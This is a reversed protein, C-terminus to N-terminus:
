TSTPWSCRTWPIYSSALVCVNAVVGGPPKRKERTRVEDLTIQGAEYEDWYSLLPVSVGAARRREVMREHCNRWGVLYENLKRYATRDVFRGASLRYPGGIVFYPLLAMHKQALDWLEREEEETMDGYIVGAALYFPFKMFASVAHLTFPEKDDGKKEGEAGPKSDSTAGDAAAALSPLSEVFAKAASETVGIRAISAAHRFPPDFIQRRHRWEDGELLGVCRGLVQGVFWGLNQYLPKGHKDSDSHFIKLDEPTTIVSYPALM